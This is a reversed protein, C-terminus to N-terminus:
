VHQKAKNADTKTAADGHRERKKRAPNISPGVGYLYTCMYVVHSESETETETETEREDERIREKERKRDAEGDRQAVRRGARRAGEHGRRAV